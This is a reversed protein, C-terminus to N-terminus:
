AALPRQGLPAFSRPGQDLRLPGMKPQPPTAERGLMMAIRVDHNTGDEDRYDLRALMIPVFLRQDGLPFSQMETLPVTLEISMTLKEGPRADGLTDAPMDTAGFFARMAQHQQNSASILGARLQVAQALSRGENAIRLQGRVTLMTFSIAAKEPVFSVVVQPTKVPTSAHAPVPKAVVPQDLEPAQSKISNEEYASAARRKGRRNLAFWLGLLGILIAAAVGGVVVYNPDSLEPKPEAVVPATEPFTLPGAQEVIPDATDPELQAAPELEATPAPQQSAPQRTTPRPQASAADPVTEPVTSVVPPPTASPQPTPEPEAREPDLRFDRLEPPTNPIADQAYAPAGGAFIAAAFAVFSFLARFPRM